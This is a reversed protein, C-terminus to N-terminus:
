KQDISFSLPYLEAEGIVSKKNLTINGGTNWNTGPEALLVM